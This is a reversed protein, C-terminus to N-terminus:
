RGQRENKRDTQTLAKFLTPHVSAAEELAARVPTRISEHAQDSTRLRFLHYCQRLNMTAMFRQIHAHTVAYPALEPEKKRLERYLDEALSTTEQLEGTLGADEIASPIFTGLEATLSPFLPTQMRHRRFERLAGYDMRFEFTYQVTEFERPPADHATMDRLCEEIIRRWEQPGMRDMRDRNQGYDGKGERYALATALNREGNEDFKVLKAQAKGKGEERAPAQNQQDGTRKRALYPNHGAYKILTPVVARGQERIALGLNRTEILQTSMLKSVAHELSRANATLGVNTLTAAPLAGRCADTAQRRIRLGYASQSEGEEKPFTEKLRSVCKALLQRYGDFIANCTRVYKRKADPQLDLERPTHYSNGEIVQYRSSKETFSALRNNELQDAALRSINEVALHVAAHEAVSAHGYDLVWKEHFGAAQEESLRRATEDFPGPNRSTMAFVVAIQEETLGQNDLPYVRM